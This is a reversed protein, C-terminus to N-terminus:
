NSLLAQHILRPGIIPLTSAHILFALHRPKSFLKRARESTAIIHKGRKLALPGYHKPTGSLIHRALSIGDEIGLNMGRGGIPSHCHAADGILYVQGKQYTTAQRIDIRFAGQHLIQDYSLAKPLTELCHPSNSAVRFRHAQLPIIITFGDSNIFFSIHPKLPTKSTVDAISWTEPLTIGPYSIHALTRTASHSGDAGIICDFSEIQNNITARIGGTTQEFHTLTHEYLIQGGYSALADTLLNETDAQPLCVLRTQPKSKKYLQWTTKYVSNLHIHAQEIIIGLDLLRKSVGSPELLKLTKPRIGLAKSLTSPGAKKDIVIPMLGNRALEVACALGSPGVGVILIKKLM